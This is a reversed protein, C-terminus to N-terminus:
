KAPSNTISSCPQTVRSMQRPLKAAASAPAHTLGPHPQSAVAIKMALRPQPTSSHFDRADLDNQNHPHHGKGDACQWLEEKDATPKGLGQVAIQPVDRISKDAANDRERQEHGTRAELNVGPRTTTQSEGYSNEDRM